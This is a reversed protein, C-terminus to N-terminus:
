EVTATSLTEKDQGPLIRDASANNHHTDRLAIVPTEGPNSPLGNNTSRVERRISVVESPVPPTSSYTTGEEIRTDTNQISTTDTEAQNPAATTSRADTGNPSRVSSNVTGPPAVSPSSSTSRPARPGLPVKPERTM